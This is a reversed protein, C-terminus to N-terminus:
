LFFVNSRYFRFGLSSFFFGETQIFNSAGAITTQNILSSKWQFAGGCACRLLRTFIKESKDKLTKELDCVQGDVYHASSFIREDNSYFFVVSSPCIM